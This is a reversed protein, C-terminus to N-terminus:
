RKAQPGAARAPRVASTSGTGAPGTGPAVPPKDPGARAPVSGAAGSRSPSKRAKEIREVLDFLRKRADELSSAETIKQQLFGAIWPGAAIALDYEANTGAAYAGINVLDEIDQWIAMLRRVEQAADQHKPDVLDIMLRSLSELVSVAPWHGRNALARSLVLHGDVIGRVADSIPEALDDGEVLVSYFGTISGGATRGSRELLKALLAFVSPTYGKTAPPEGAALGIQRQAMAVRTVSDMMLLVNLGRDRFFEAIATAALAARVRMAPSEDSTSVVLVCRKLGDPGLDKEIFDQVERGREGVLCVVTVDASTYRAVMGLLVSKGVGTGSFVGLRQGSGVTIMGDVSRIGTSIVEDIRKRQLALPAPRQLPYFAEATIPPGRDIPEATASVIRGIMSEGVPISQHARVCTVPDGPAVGTAEDLPMLLALGNVFGIVEVRVAKGSRAAIVCTAGVPVPLDEAAVALGRMQAVRGTVKQPVCERVTELYDCLLTM